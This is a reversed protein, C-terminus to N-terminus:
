TIIFIGKHIPYFKNCFGLCIIMHDLTFVEVFYAAIATRIQLFVGRDAFLTTRLLRARAVSLLFAAKIKGCYFLFSIFKPNKSGRVRLVRLGVTGVNGQLRKWGM